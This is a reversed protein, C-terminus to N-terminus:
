AMSKAEHKANMGFTGNGSRDMQVNSGDELDINM